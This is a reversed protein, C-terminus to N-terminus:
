DWPPVWPLEPGPSLATSGSVPCAAQPGFPPWRGPSQGMQAKKTLM